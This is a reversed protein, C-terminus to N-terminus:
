RQTGLMIIEETRDNVMDRVREALAGYVMTEIGDRIGGTTEGNYSGFVWDADVDVFDGFEAERMGRRARQLHRPCMDEFHPSGRFTYGSGDPRVYSMRPPTTVHVCRCGGRARCAAERKEEDCYSCSM